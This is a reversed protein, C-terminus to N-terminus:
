KTKKQLEEYQERIAEMEELNQRMEEEKEQMLITQEEFKKILLASKENMRINNLNSAINNAIRKILEIDLKRLKKFSALEIIGFVEEDISLPFILLAAPNTSGMGSEIKLYNEPVDNMVIERNESFVIGYNGTTVHIQAKGKRIDNSVGYDSILDFLEESEDENNLMYLVGSTAEIYKIIQKLVKSSLARFDDKNDALIDNIIAVGNNIWAQEKEKDQHVLLM